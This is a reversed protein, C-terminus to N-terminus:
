VDIHLILVFHHFCKELLLTVYGLLCENEVDSQYRQGKNHEKDDLNLDHADVLQLASAHNDRCKQALDVANHVLTKGLVLEGLQHPVRLYPPELGILRVFLPDLTCFYARDTHLGEM